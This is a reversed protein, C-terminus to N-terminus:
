VRERCSARGIKAFLRYRGFTPYYREKFISLMANVLLAVLLILLIVVGGTKFVTSAISKKPPQTKSAGANKQGASENM